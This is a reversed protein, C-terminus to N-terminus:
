EEKLAVGYNPNLYDTNKHMAVYNFTGDLLLPTQGTGTDNPQGAFAVYVDDLIYQNFSGTCDPTSYLYVVKNILNVSASLYPKAVSLEDYGYGTGIEIKDGVRLNHDAMYDETVVLLQTIDSFLGDDWVTWQNKQSFLVFSTPSTLVGDELSGNSTFDIWNVDEDLGLAEIYSSLTFNFRQSQTGAVNIDYIGGSTIIHIYESRPHELDSLERPNTQEDAYIDPEINVKYNNIQNNRTYDVYEVPWYEGTDTSYYGTYNSSPDYEIYQPSTDYDYLGSVDALYNFKTVDHEVGEIGALYGGVIAGAIALALITVGLM